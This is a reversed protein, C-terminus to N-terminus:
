HWRITAAISVFRDAGTAGGDGGRAVTTTTMTDSRFGDGLALAVAL